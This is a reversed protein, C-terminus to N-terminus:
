NEQTKERIGNKFISFLEEKFFLKEETPFDKIKIVSMWGIYKIEDLFENRNFVGNKNEYLIM